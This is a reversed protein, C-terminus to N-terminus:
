NDSEFFRQKLDSYRNGEEIVCNMLDMNKTMSRQKEASM